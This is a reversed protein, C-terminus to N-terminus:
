LVASEWPAATEDPRRGVERRGGECGGRAAGGAQTEATCKPLLFLGGCSQGRWAARGCRRASGARRGRALVAAGGWRLRGGAPCVSRSGPEERGREGASVAMAVRAWSLVARSGAGMPADVSASPVFGCLAAAVTGCDRRGTRRQRPSWSTVAAASRSPTPRAALPPLAALGPSPSGREAPREPCLSGGAGGRRAERGQATREGGAAGGPGLEAAEPQDEAGRSPCRRSREPGRQLVRQSRPTGSVYRNERGNGWTQM